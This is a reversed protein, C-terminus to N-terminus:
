SGVPLRRGDRFAFGIRTKFDWAGIGARWAAPPLASFAMGKRCGQRAFGSELRPSFCSEGSGKM